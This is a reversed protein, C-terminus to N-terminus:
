RIVWFNQGMRIEVTKYIALVTHGNIITIIARNQYSIGAIIGSTAYAPKPVCTATPIISRLRLSRVNKMSILNNLITLYKPSLSNIKIAEKVATVIINPAIAIYKTSAGLPWALIRLM